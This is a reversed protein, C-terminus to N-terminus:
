DSFDPRHRECATEDGCRAGNAWKPRRMEIRLRAEVICSSARRARYQMGGAILRQGGVKDQLKKSLPILLVPVNALQERDPGVEGEGTGVVGIVVDRIRAAGQGDGGRRQGDRDVIRRLDVTRHKPHECEIIKTLPSLAELKFEAGEALVDAVAKLATPFFAM